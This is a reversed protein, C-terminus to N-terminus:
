ARPLSKGSQPKADASRLYLPRTECAPTLDAAVAALHRADGQLEEFAGMAESDHLAALILANGSGVIMLRRGADLYDQCQEVGGAVSALVPEMLPTLDSANFFQLYIADKRADVAVALVDAFLANHMKAKASMALLELSNLAVLPKAAALAFAKAASMGVRLGTFGGPGRTVAIRDLDAFDVAAQRMAKAIMPMLREAHGTDCAEFYAHESAGRRVTVSVAGFCTDFALINM